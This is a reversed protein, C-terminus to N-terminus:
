ILNSINYIKITKVQYRATAPDYSLLPEQAYM